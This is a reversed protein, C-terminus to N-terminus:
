LKESYDGDKPKLDGTVIRILDIIFLIGCVGGTLLMLIGLGTYGLYFRHIGLTGAFICLLLALLQKKGNDKAGTSKTAKSKKTGQKILTKTESASTTNASFSNVKKGFAVAKHTPFIVFNKDVSATINEKNVLASYFNDVGNTGIKLQEVSATQHQEKKIKTDNSVIAQKDANHKRKNWEIHYGSM